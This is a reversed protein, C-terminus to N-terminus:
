EKWSLEEGHTFGLLGLDSEPLVHFFAGGARLGIRKDAQSLTAHNSRLILKWRRRQPYPSDDM